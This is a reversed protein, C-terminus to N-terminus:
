RQPFLRRGVAMLAVDIIYLRWWTRRAFVTNKQRMASGFIILDMVVGKNVQISDWAFVREPVMWYVRGGYDTNAAMWECVPYVERIPAHLSVFSLIRYYSTIIMREILKSWKPVLEEEAM